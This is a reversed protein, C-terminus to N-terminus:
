EKDEDWWHVFGNYMQHIMKGVDEDKAIEQGKLIISGNCNIELIIESENNSFEISPGNHVQVNLVPDSAFDFGDNLRLYSNNFSLSGDILHIVSTDNISGAIFFECAELEEPTANMSISTCNIEEISTGNVLPENIEEKNMFVILFVLIILVLGAIMITTLSLGQGKRNM